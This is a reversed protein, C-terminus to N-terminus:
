LLYVYIGAIALFPGFPIAGQAIESDEISQAQRIKQMVGIVSGLASALFIVLLLHSLGVFLGISGLLLPDGWGMAWQHELLRKKRRLILTALYNIISFVSIGMVGGGIRDILSFHKPGNFILMEFMRAKQPPQWWDPVIFFLTSFIVAVTFLAVLLNNPIYFTDIDIYAICVLIFFFLLKELALFSVGYETYLALFALSFLIELVFFRVGYKVGCFACRGRLVIWSIVPVNHWLQLKNKCAHCFSRPLIVSIGQPWRSIVVGAFSGFCAGILLMFISVFPKLIDAIIVM